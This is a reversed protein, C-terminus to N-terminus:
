DFRRIDRFKWCSVQHGKASVTLSPEIDCEEESFICRPKFRCGEPLDVPNPPEGKISYKHKPALPDPVPVAGLLAMTYPHLPNDFIEETDGIEVIKGLYMVATENCLYRVTSLDHSIYLTSMNYEETLRQILNLIGARISVDLMSVPEDAVLFSPGLVLARAIAVRQREGGSLEHPFKQLYYDPPRLGVDSLVKYVREETGIKNKCLKQIALPEVITKFVTRRPNLSEYPDQFIMQAKRHFEFLSDKEFRTIDDGEFIIEGSTPITLATLLRGVTTKGCGSEGAMGLVKGRALQFSVGDVAKVFQKSGESILSAIIGKKLPFWKKLDQVRVVAESNGKNTSDM